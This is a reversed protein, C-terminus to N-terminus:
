QGYIMIYADEKPKEYFGRRIGQKAFGNKEYLHIANENSVRVELVMREVGRQAAEKRLEAILQGGIGRQRSEFAVAVNTIEGEDLALYMGVYGLIRENEEAVLFVTGEQNLADSFGQRSWPMSFIQEELAAVAEVDQERMARISIM